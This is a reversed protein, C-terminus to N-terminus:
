DRAVRAYVAPVVYLTLGTALILGGVVAIGLSRRSGASGGLSLAIPLIGLITSLSTMLIPRLRSRAADIVADVKALGAARRQNAFEVILIGNKAVLGILMIMGIQSFVNLTQGFLALALLAGALSLPVTIMIILPDRFSEFQAALVLYITALALAFAFILSSASDDFDRSQGALSTRMGPPLTREAIEDLAEIGDGIAYGPALGGSVTASAFRDFRYIAALGATEDFRVVNDLSVMSGSTTRLHLKALDGPDNRDGRELQGIVQYQRGRDLFYGFRVGGFALELTRAIDRVPIGLEAAMRRDISVAGEPRNLKLDTDVFRLVPSQNAQELFEPLVGILEEVTAAQLVYQLPQGSRRDGITPPQTPSARVATFEVLDTALQRFLEDQSRERRDPDELFLVFLGNNVGLGGAGVISLARRVEPANDQLYVAIRDLEYQMFETSAGEPGRVNVRINSRDEIPALERPLSAGLAVIAVAVGALIPLMLSRARMFASLTRAYGSSLAEFFRESRQYLVGEHSEKKLLFRCMMPSLTLAVFASALISAVLVAGFERFLRGTLGEMFIVPVFVAALAITTSIVAFYIERSGALAAELPAMGAEIKSYINEMVVIADDCVLGIALVIGVLTLVNLSYGLLYMAFFSSVISVPIAIVPILTSRWSRLFAFIILAVLVFAIVLTEQVEAISRRIFTTMDYSVDLLIDDPLDARIGELRRYFEDAIAIANTNPQPIVGIGVVPVLDTKNGSRLNEAGLEARGVDGFEIQRGSSTELIMRDFDTETSLRGATRLSVEVTSGELRGSPLDVNQRELAAHVDLPTLGHAALRAPDMWLRMAYRKEGFIRVSSVGPITQVREKVVRDVWDNVELITRLPSRAFLFLIPQADADAKEVTPPDADPPLQRIAASVKDRVDNAAAELDVGIEFEVRITSREDSSVSSVERIGGIGNIQQELPETIQSAIVEPHAGPYNTRVSIIPPDVAPYERVGLFAFGVLGFLVLGLSLVTALVPRHISTEALSV